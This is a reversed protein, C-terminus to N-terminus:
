RWLHAIYQQISRAMNQLYQGFSALNQGGYMFYDLALLAIIIIALARLM